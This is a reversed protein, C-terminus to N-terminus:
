KGALFRTNYRRHLADRRRALEPDGNSIARPLPGVTEGDETYLDMDKAYGWVELVFVRKWDRAPPADPVPFELHIEEGPGFIALVDDREAILPTIPGLRTYYGSAYKTDWYASRNQYDYYPVRQHATRREPFGSKNLRALSPELTAVRHEARSERAVLRVRDWYIQRETTLRLANTGPPLQPLPLAMERPMGAPYGFQEYVTHWRGAGDRAELTPAAYTAGAQWAAFTTQSYPYEVWADALLVLDGADHLRDGFELVLVHPNRLRGIFRNDLEGVPAADADRFRLVESVDQGRDNSVRAPLIERRYFFPKGSVVPAGVGLREDLGMSWGPPLDYVHLRALDLYANEEMPETLKLHYRGDKAQLSGEPLAYFEWPRPQASRGPSVFAGMGGVGLVDSLFEFRTGNWAFLVPCSSLQRQTEAITHVNPGVDLETQFVGDSWNIAVYDARPLGALGLSLPQLSQGPASSKDFTDTLTWNSGLRLAVQTGIGSANSRMADATDERGTLRLAAFAYRGPGPPWIRLVVREGERVVGVLSPGNSPEELVTALALVEGDVELRERWAGDPAFEYVSFGGEYRWAIEQRGDGSFDEVILAQGPASSERQAVDRSTWVESDGQTWWWMGGGGDLSVLDARGNADLDAGVAAVVDAALIEDFGPAKRYQWLRDNLHAAHPLVASVVLLDVDRDQDVDLTVLGTSGDPSGSLGQNAALRRYSGDRNNNFLENHTDRNVVFVDLDGDHDADFLAGDACRGDDDTGSVSGTEEWRGPAGQRWLENPGERCLYVDTLGDNDMDGWLAANVGHRGSLVHEAPAYGGATDALLVLTAPDGALFLDQRGDHNVDATTVTPSGTVAPLELDRPRGFLEGAPPVPPVAGPLDLALAEAKPGMRTYKFEALRARPNDKLRQYEGLRVKAEERRGLRRLVQAAGYYASRLYADSEMARLYWALSAEADGQQLLNQGVYYAAYADGPDRDAVVRFHELSLETEGLYLHLLATVYHARLHNPDHQLAETTLALAAREDGELQRNLTAIALNVRADVWNPQLQILERFTAEAEAYDFYGMLAVGRNNLAIAEPSLASDDAGFCGAVLSAAMAALVVRQFRKVMMRFLLESM